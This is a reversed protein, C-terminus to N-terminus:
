GRADKNLLFVDTKLHEQCGLQVTPSGGAEVLSMVLATGEQLSSVKLCVSLLCVCDLVLPGAM